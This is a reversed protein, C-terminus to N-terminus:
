DFQSIIVYIIDFVHVVLLCSHLISFLLIHFNFRVFTIFCFVFKDNATAKIFEIIKNVKVIFSDFDNRLQLTFARQPFMFVEDFLSSVSEFLKVKEDLTAKLSLNSDVYEKLKEKIEDCQRKREAFNVKGSYGNEAKENRFIDNGKGSRTEKVVERKQETEGSLAELRAQCYLKKFAEKQDKLKKMGSELLEEQAKLDQIYQQYSKNESSESSESWDRHQSVHDKQIHPAANLRKAFQNREKIIDGLISKLQEIINKQTVVEQQLQAAILESSASRAKEVAVVLRAKYQEDCSRNLKSLAERSTRQAQVLNQAIEGNKRELNEIGVSCDNYKTEIASYKQAMKSLKAVLEKNQEILMEREKEM